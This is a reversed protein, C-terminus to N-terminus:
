RRLNFAPFDHAAFAPLDAHMILSIHMYPLSAVALLNMKVQNNIPAASDKNTSTKRATSLSRYHITKWKRKNYGSQNLIRSFKRANQPQPSESQRIIRPPKRPSSSRASQDGQRAVSRRGRPHRPPGIRQHKQVVAPAALLPRRAAEQRRYSGRIARSNELVAEFTQRAEVHAAAGAKQAARLLVLQFDQDPRGQWARRALDAGPDLLFETENVFAARSQDRQQM